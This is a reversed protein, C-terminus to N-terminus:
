GLDQTVSASTQGPTYSNTINYNDDITTTYGPVTLESVTYTIEQGNAYKPLNTFSYTWNDDATVTKTDTIRGNALLNVTISKPRKGDQNNNDNWTKHGTIDITAPKHTNTINYGEVKTEYDAVAEEGVTYKIETGAEYKPLNDFSYKWNDKETVQKSAVKTGNALLNVTISAPRKGDQNNSDDWTKTGSISTTETNTIVFGSEADGTIAATYGDVSETEEVTYEIDREGNKKVLNKWTYSWNNSADLIVEDGFKVSDAYLQVKISDPRKSDKNDGDNWVKTVTVEGPISKNDFSPSEMTTSYNEDSYYTVNAVLKNGNKKIDAKVYITKNDIMVDSLDSQTEVIKYYHTGETEFKGLDNFLVTGNTNTVTKVLTWSDRNKKLLEFQFNVMM